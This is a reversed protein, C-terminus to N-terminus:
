TGWGLIVIRLTKLLIALDLFIGMNKIYFLDYKLKEKTQEMSSAYPYMVQAWGTLGPKVLLRYSYFPIKERVESVMIEPSDTSIRVLRPMKVLETFHKVFVEREPRPGILSMDGKLINLLQPLEDFRFKRLFRGVRTIRRDGASAWKPGEREANELMTRFKYIKFPVANQGLRDQQYFVPGRSDLKIAVSLLLFLPWCAALSLLSFGIDILRKVRLYRVKNNQLSNVYLWVDSIHEIPIKSAIFEYFSPMDIVQCGNWCIKTLINILDQSKEHTIAVVILDLRLDKILRPLQFSKGLVPLGAVERDALLPNDDIFGITNLGSRPRNKIAELLRQGAKGAGLILVRKQLRQHLAFSSFYWRWLLMLGTFLSAQVILQTRGIFVGFPFYFIVIVVLTGILSGLLLKVINHWIRFDDM